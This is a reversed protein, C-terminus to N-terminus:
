ILSKKMCKAKVLAANMAKRLADADMTLTKLGGPGYKVVISIALTKNFM